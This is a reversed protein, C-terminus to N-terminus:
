KDKEDDAGYIISRVRDAPTEAPTTSTKDDVIEDPTSGTIKKTKSPLPEEKELDTITDMLSEDTRKSLETKYTKTEEDNKLDMVVKKQLTKQMSFVKDVLNDHVQTKLSINDEEIKKIQDRLTQIETDKIEVDKQLAKAKEDLASMGSLQTEFKKSTESIRADIHDKLDTREELLETITKMNEENNSQNDKSSKDCGLLKAKRDVCALIRSKDGPGKYQDILKRAVTVHAGDPVPLSRNPGCFESAPLKKRKETSLKADGLEKNTEVMLWCAMTLDDETFGEWNDFGEYPDSHLDDTGDAFTFRLKDQSNIVQTANSLDPVEELNITKAYEDAPNNVYSCERYELGGITWFAKKGDYVKGRVHECLGDEHIKHDCVSCVVSSAGAGISVTNYREDKIKKISDPDSIEAKLEIYGKPSNDGNPVMPIYTAQKVRGKPDTVSNHHTLIPKEYPQTWSKVADSMDQEPYYANNGNVFGAHTADITAIYKYM